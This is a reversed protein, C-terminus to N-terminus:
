SWDEIRVRRASGRSRARRSAQYDAVDLPVECAASALLFDLALDTASAATADGTGTPAPSEAGRELRSPTLGLPRLSAAAMKM